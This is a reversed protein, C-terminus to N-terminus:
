RVQLRIKDWAQFRTVSGRMNKHWSQWRACLCRQVLSPRLWILFRQVVPEADPIPTSLNRWFFRKVPEIQRVLVHIEHNYAPICEKLDLDALEGPMAVRLRHSRTPNERFWRADNSKWNDGARYRGPTNQKQVQLANM